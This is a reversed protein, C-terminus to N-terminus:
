PSEIVSLTPATRVQNRGAAKARYLAEDAAQMVTAIELPGDQLTVVGFSATLRQGDHHSLGSEQLRHRLTEAISEAQATDVRPLCAVFEEGGYRAFLGGHMEVVERGINGLRKLYRDGILHGQHDNIRKFHDVDCIMVSLPRAEANAELTEMFLRRNPLKTLEDHRALWEIEKQLQNRTRIERRLGTNAAHVQRHRRELRTYGLLVLYLLYALTLGTVLSVVPHRPLRAILQAHSPQVTLGLPTGAVDLLIEHQWPGLRIEPFQSALIRDGQSLALGIAQTDVESFLREALVPLSIVMAVAGLIREDELAIPLYHIIGPVGQLLMIVETRGIRHEHLARSVAERGAPQADFLRAGLAQRNIENIPHVRTIHSDPDVFAMNLLFRFDRHYPEAQRCWEEQTPPSDFLTWISAFRQVAALHDQIERTLRDGLQQAQAQTQRALGQETISKQHHWLLLTLVVLLLPPSLVRKLPVARSHWSPVSSVGLGALLVAITLTTWTGASARILSTELNTYNLLLQMALLCLVMISLLPGGRAPQSRTVILVAILILSLTALLAPRWAELSLGAALGHSLADWNALPVWYEPLVYSGLVLVLTFLVISVLGKALARAGWLMLLQALVLMGTLCLTLLEHLRGAGDQSLLGLTLPAIALSVVLSAPPLM